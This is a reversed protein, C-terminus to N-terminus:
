GAVVRQIATKVIVVIDDIGRAVAHGFTGVLAGILDPGRDGVGQPIIKFVKLQRRVGVDIAGAIAQIVVDRARVAVVRKITQVAVICQEAPRAVVGQHAPHAIIRHNAARM